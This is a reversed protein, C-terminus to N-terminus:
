FHINGLTTIYMSFFAMVIFGVLLALFIILLPQVIRGILETEAALKEEYVDALREFVRDLVGAEEGM